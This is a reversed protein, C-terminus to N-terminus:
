ARSQNVFHNAQVLFERLPANEFMEWYADSIGALRSLQERFLQGNNRNPKQDDAEKFFCRALVVSHPALKRALIPALFANGKDLNTNEVVPSASLTSNLPPASIQIMLDRVTKRDDGASKANIFTRIEV